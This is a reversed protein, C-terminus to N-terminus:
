LSLQQPLDPWGQKRRYVRILIPKIFKLFLLFTNHDPNFMPHALIKVDALLPHLCFSAQVLLM